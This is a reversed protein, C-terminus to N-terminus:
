LLNNAKESWTFGNHGTFYKLRYPVKSVPEFLENNNMRFKMRKVELTYILEDDISYIQYAITPDPLTTDFTLLGFSQKENYGFISSPKVKHVHENTLRTYRKL